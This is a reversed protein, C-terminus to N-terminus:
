ASGTVQEQGGVLYMRGSEQMTKITIGSMHKPENELPGPRKRYLRTPERLHEAIGRRVGAGTILFPSRSKAIVGAKKQKCSPGRRKEGSLLHEGPPVETKDRKRLGKSTTEGKRKHSKEGKRSNVPHAGRGPEGRKERAV